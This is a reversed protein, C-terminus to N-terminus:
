AISKRKELVNEIRIIKSVQDESSNEGHTEKYRLINNACYIAITKSLSYEQSLKEALKKTQAQHQILEKKTLESFRSSPEKGAQKAEFYLRGEISAQREAIM